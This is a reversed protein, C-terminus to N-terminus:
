PYSRLLHLKQQIFAEKSEYGHATIASVRVETALKFLQPLPPRGPELAGIAYGQLCPRTRRCISPEWASM